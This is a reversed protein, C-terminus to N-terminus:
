VTWQIEDAMEDAAWPTMHCVGHLHSLMGSRKVVEDPGVDPQTM